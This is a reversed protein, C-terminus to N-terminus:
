RAPASDSRQRHGVIEDIYAYIEYHGCDTREPDDSTNPPGARAPTSLMLM